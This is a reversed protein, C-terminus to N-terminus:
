LPDTELSVTTSRRNLTNRFLKTKDVLNITYIPWRLPNRFSASGVNAGRWLSDRKTLAQFTLKLIEKRRGVWHRLETSLFIIIDTLIRSTGKESAIRRAISFLDAFAMKRATKGSTWPIELVCYCAKARPFWMLFVHWRFVICRM